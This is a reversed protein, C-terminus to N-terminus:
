LTKVMLVADGTYHILRHPTTKKRSVERYGLREYLKKAGINQEFVVLSTKVHGRKRAQQEARGMLGSGIGQGRYDEFVAVCDIYYSENERLNEFIALVPDTEIEKGVKAVDSFALLMGILEDEVTAVMCNQYSIQTGEREYRQQAVDLINEGHQAILTWAYDAVGDSAISALRAIVASDPKLARRYIIDGNM